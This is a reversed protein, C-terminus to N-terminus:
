VYRPAERAFGPAASTKLSARRRKSATCAGTAGTRTASRPARRVRVSCPSRAMSLSPVMSSARSARSRRSFVVGQARRCQPRWATSRPSATTSQGGRTSGCRAGCLRTTRRFVASVRRTGPRSWATSATGSTPLGLAPAAGATLRAETIGSCPMTRRRALERSYRHLLEFAIFMPPTAVAAADPERLWEFRSRLQQDFIAVEGDLVLSRASLKAIAATIGAFCRTHDRGSRSVLRVRAGDKYALIRRGDVKEEYVWGDRHFPERVQTPAMPTYATFV